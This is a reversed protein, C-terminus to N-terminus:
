ENGQRVPAPGTSERVVLRSKYEISAVSESSGEMLKLLMEFATKGVEERPQHVTTLSPRSVRAIGLDNFGIVSVDEPVRFGADYLGRLAGVATLDDFLILATPLDDRHSHSFMRRVVKYTSFEIGDGNQAYVWDSNNMVEIGGSTLYDQYGLMKANKNNHAWQTTIIAVRRHHLESLHDVAEKIGALRNVKVSNIDDPLAWDMFVAPISQKEVLSLIAQPPALGVYDVILGDVRRHLLDQLHQVHSHSDELTELGTNVFYVQYGNARAASEISRAKLMSSKDELLGGLLGITMSKGGLLAKSLWNPRYDLEEAIRKVRQCTHKNYGPRDRLIDAVSSTSLGAKRSIDAISSM